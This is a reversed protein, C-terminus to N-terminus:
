QRVYYYEHTDLLIHRAPDFAEAAEDYTTFVDGEKLYSYFLYYVGEREVMIHDGSLNKRITYEFCTKDPFRREQLYGYRDYTFVKPRSRFLTIELEKDSNKPRIICTECSEGHCTLTAPSDGTHKLITSRLTEFRLPKPQEKKGLGSIFLMYVVGILIIVILLEVLTFGRKIQQM